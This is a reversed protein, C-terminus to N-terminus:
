QRGATLKSVRVVFFYNALDVNKNAGCCPKEETNDRGSILDKCTNRKIKKFVTHCCYGALYLIASLVDTCKNVDNILVM